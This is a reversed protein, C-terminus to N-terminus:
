MKVDSKECIDGISHKKGEVARPKGQLELLPDDTIGHQKANTTWSRQRFRNVSELM